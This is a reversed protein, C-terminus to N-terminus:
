KHCVVCIPEEDASEHCAMCYEIRSAGMAAHNGGGEGRGFNLWNSSSHNLPKVDNVRHCEVCEDHEHCTECEMNATMFETKHILLFNQPHVQFATNDGEHCSICTEDRHCASCSEGDDAAATVGHLAEWHLEHSEPKAGLEEHCAYCTSFKAVTKDDPSSSEAIGEHCTTCTIDGKELHMKHSFGPIPTTIRPFTPNDDVNTHCTECNGDIDDAHCDYCADHSFTFLDDTGATSEPVGEHCQSCEIEMEGVHLEHSFEIANEASLAGAMVVLSLIISNMIKKM